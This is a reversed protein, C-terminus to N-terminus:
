LSQRDLNLISVEIYAKGEKLLVNVTNDIEVKYSRNRRYIYGAVQQGRASNYYLAKVYEDAKM